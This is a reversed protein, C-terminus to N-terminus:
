IWTLKRLFRLCMGQKLPEETEYAFYKFASGEGLTLVDREEIQISGVTHHEELQIRQHDKTIEWWYYKM